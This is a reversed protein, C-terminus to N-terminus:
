ISSAASRFSYIALKKDSAVCSQQVPWAPTAPWSSANERLSSRARLLGRASEIRPLSVRSREDAVTKLDAAVMEGVLQEFSVKHQWGLKSRAKSPDGILLDVETPRFYRPDIEVLVRGSEADIGKEDVGAGQWVIKVGIQAFAKEVFERVSHTEGTALVYDDPESCQLIRWM